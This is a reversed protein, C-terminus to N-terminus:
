TATSRWPPSASARPWALGEDDAISMASEVIAEHTLERKPGRQPAVAVGWAQALLRPVAEETM